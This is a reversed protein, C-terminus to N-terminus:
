SSILGGVTAVMELHNATAPYDECSHSWLHLRTERGVVQAIEATCVPELPRRCDMVLRSDALIAHCHQLGTDYETIELPWPLRAKRISRRSRPGHRMHQGDYGADCPLATLADIVTSVDLLGRWVIVDRHREANQRRKVTRRHQQRPRNLIRRVERLDVPDPLDAMTAIVSEAGFIGILGAVTLRSGTEAIVTAAGCYDSM